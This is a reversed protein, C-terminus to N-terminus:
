SKKPRKKGADELNVVWSKGMKAFDRLILLKPFCIKIFHMKFQKNIMIVFKKRAYINENFLLKEL